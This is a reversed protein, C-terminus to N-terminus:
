FGVPVARAAELRLTMALRRPSLCPVVLTAERARVVADEMGYHPLTGWGERLFWRMRAMEAPPSVGWAYRQRATDFSAEDGREVRGAARLTERCFALVLPGDRAGRLDARRYSDLGLVLAAMVLGTLIWAGRDLGRAPAPDPAAVPAPRRLLAELALLALPLVAPVAFVLLRDTNRGFLALPRTEGVNMWAVFPFGLTVLLLFWYRRLYPRARRLCAGAAALPLLGSLLLGVLTEARYQWLTRLISGWSGSAPLRPLSAVPAWGWRLLVTMGLAGAASAVLKWAALRAGDRDRRAFFVLPLLLVQLEKNSAAVASVLALVGAGANSELAVLFAVELALALPEVLYPYGIVEGVPGSAALAAAGALSAIPGHGLRRLFLYALSSAGALGVLTLWRFRAIVDRGPLADVVLPTLVRYGWPAVTFVGPSEAMAVYVYADFAPLQFRDHAPGGDLRQQRFAVIAAAVLLAALAGRKM